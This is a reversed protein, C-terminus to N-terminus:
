CKEGKQFFGLHPGYEALPWFGIDGKATHFVTFVRGKKGKRSELSIIELPGFKDMNSKPVAGVDVGAALMTALHNTVAENITM